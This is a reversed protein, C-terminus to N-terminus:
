LNILVINNGQLLILDLMNLEQFEILLLYFLLRLLFLGQSLHIYKSYDTDRPRGATEEPKDYMIPEEKKENPKVSQSEQDKDKKPKKHPKEIIHSSNEDNRITSLDRESDSFEPPVPM